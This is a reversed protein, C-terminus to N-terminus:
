QPSTHYSCTVNMDSCCFCEAVQCDHNRHYNCVSDYGYCGCPADQYSTVLGTYLIVPCIDVYKLARLLIDHRRADCIDPTHKGESIEEANILIAAGPEQMQFSIWPQANQPAREHLITITKSM